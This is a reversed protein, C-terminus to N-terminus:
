GLKLHSHQSVTSECAGNKELLEIVDQHQTRYADSLPTNGWRDIPNLQVQKGILYRAIHVQGESAALHLATRGDYDAANLDIGVATLRRIELLDGQSAAWLLSMISSLKSENKKHRPDVKDATRVLSDYNHFNFRKVLEKCFNIGRVSNGLTDLRPSWICVGMVNPVVVILGGSVGSKAPLGVIFAFEGSFDYMGCSYMLSLCNKVTNADFIRKGTLPCIGANALTAAVVSMSEATMEISCCQFYLDLVNYLDTGEPFAKKERMFHALAFNRDATNKESLYVANNFRPSTIGGSLAKWTDMVYDFRDASDLHPKLLSCAMIAGANILPNHPLNQPNLALVNFGHGSPEKGIHQHVKEEGHEQQVLCYNIPKCISQICFYNTADGISHMQGDITCIAVGYQEPNVRSLQPIYSAVEGTNDSSIMAYIEDLKHCFDSFNPIILNGCLTNEILSLNNKTIEVFQRFDIKSAESFKALKDATSKLRPDQLRIGMINLADILSEKYIYGKSDIDLAAFLQQETNHEDFTTTAANLKVLKMTSAKHPKPLKTM